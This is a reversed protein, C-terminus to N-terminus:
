ARNQQRSHYVRCKTSCFRQDSRVKHYEDGCYECTAMVDPQYKKRNVSHRCWDCCYKVIRTGRRFSMKRRCTPCDHRYTFEGRGYPMSALVKHSCNECITTNGNQYTIYVHDGIDGGCLECKEGAYRKYVYNKRDQNADKMIAGGATSNRIFFHPTERFRNRIFINVSYITKNRIFFHPSRMFGNRIFTCVLPSRNGTVSM